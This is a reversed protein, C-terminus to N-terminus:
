LCLIAGQCDWLRSLFSRVCFTEPERRPVESSGRKPLGRPLHQRWGIRVPQPPPLFVPLLGWDKVEEAGGGAVHAIGPPASLQRGQPATPLDVGRSGILAPPAPLNRCRHRRLAQGPLGRSRRGSPRRGPAGDTGSPPLWLASIARWSGSLHKLRRLRALFRFTLVPCVAAKWVCNPICNRRLEGAKGARFLERCLERAACGGFVCGRWGWLSWHSVQWGGIRSLASPFCPSPPLGPFPKFIQPGSGALTWRKMGKPLPPTLLWLEVLGQEGQLPM